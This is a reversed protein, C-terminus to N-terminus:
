RWREMTGIEVKVRFCDGWVKWINEHIVQSDDRWVVGTLADEVARALKLVDPKMTPFAPVSVKLTGANRGTGYHAKPRPREFTLSLTIPGILLGSDGFLESKDRWFPAREEYAERACRAVMQRWEHLRPNASVTRVLDHGHKQVISGDRRRIPASLKSGQPAPKGLITFEIRM